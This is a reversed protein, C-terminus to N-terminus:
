KKPNMAASGIAMTYTSAGFPTTTLALSTTINLLKARRTLAPSVWRSNGLPKRIQIRLCLGMRDRGHINDLGPIQFAQVEGACNGHLWACANSAPVNPEKLM